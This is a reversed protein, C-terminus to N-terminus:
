PYFGLGAVACALWYGLLDLLERIQIREQKPLQSHFRLTPGRHKDRRLYSQQDSILKAASNACRESWDRLASDTPTSPWFTRFYVDRVTM